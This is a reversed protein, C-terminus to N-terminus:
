VTSDTQNSVNTNYYKMQFGLKRILGNLHHWSITVKTEGGGTFSECTLLQM